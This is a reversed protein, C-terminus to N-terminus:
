PADEVYDDRDNNSMGSSDSGVNDVCIDPEDGSGLIEGGTSVGVDVSARLLSQARLSAPRQAASRAQGPSLM